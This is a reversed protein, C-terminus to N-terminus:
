GLYGSGECWSIIFRLWHLGSKVVVIFNSQFTYVIDFSKLFTRAKYFHKLLQKLLYLSEWVKELTYFQTYVPASHLPSFKFFHFSKIKVSKKLVWTTEYSTTVCLSTTAAKTTRRLCALPNQRKRHTRGEHTVRTRVSLFFRRRSFSASFPPIAVHFRIIISPSLLSLSLISLCPHHTCFPLIPNKWLPFQVPLKFFYQFTLNFFLINSTFCFFLVSQFLSYM